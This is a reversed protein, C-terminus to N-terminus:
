QSKQLINYVPGLLKMNSYLIIDLNFSFFCSLYVTFAHPTHSSRLAFSKISNVFINKISNVRYWIIHYSQFSIKLSLGLYELM